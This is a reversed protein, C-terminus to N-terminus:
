ESAKYLVTVLLTPYEQAPTIDVIKMDVYEYGDSLAANDLLTRIANDLEVDYSERLRVAKSKSKITSIGKDSM